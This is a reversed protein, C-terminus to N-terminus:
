GKWRVIDLFTKRRCGAVHKVFGVKGKATSCNCYIKKKEAQKYAQSPTMAKAPRQFESHYKLEMTSRGTADSSAEVALASPLAYAQM